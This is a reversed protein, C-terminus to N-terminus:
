LIASRSRRRDAQPTREVCLKSTFAQLQEGFAAGIKEGIEASIADTQSKTLSVPFTAQVSIDFDKKAFEYFAKMRDVLRGKVSTAVPASELAEYMAKEIILWDRVSKTPFNVVNDM